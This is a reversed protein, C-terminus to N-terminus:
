GVFTVRWTGTLAGFSTFDITAQNASVASFVDPALIASGTNDFIKYDPYQNGLNHNATLVGVVLDTNLFTITSTKAYGTLNPFVSFALPTVNLVIPNDTILIWLTDANITGEQVPVILGPRAEGSISFDASRALTNLIGNYDYIGNEAADTQNKLLVRDNNVLAVGDMSGGAAGINVNTTSALRVSEKFTLSIEPIVLEAGFSLQASSGSVSAILRYNGDAPASDPLRLDYTQTLSGPSRLKVNNLGQYFAVHAASLIDIIGSFM